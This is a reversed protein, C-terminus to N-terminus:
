VKPPPPSFTAALVYEDWKWPQFFPVNLRTRLQGSVYLVRPGVPTRTEQAGKKWGFGYGCGYGLGYVYGYVGMGM